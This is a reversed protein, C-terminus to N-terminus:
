PIFVTGDASPCVSEMRSSLSHCPLFGSLESTAPIFNPIIFKLNRFKFNVVIVTTCTLRNLKIEGKPNSDWEEWLNIIM